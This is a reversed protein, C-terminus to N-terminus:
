GQVLGSGNSCDTAPIRDFLRFFAMSRILKNLMGFFPMLKVRSLFLSRRESSLLNLKRGTTILCLLGIIYAFIRIPLYFFWPLGTIINSVFQLIDEVVNDTNDRVAQYYNLTEINELIIGALVSNWM